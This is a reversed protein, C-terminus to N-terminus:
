HLPQKYSCSCLFFNLCRDLLGTSGYFRQKLSVRRLGWARERSESNQFLVKSYILTSKQVTPKKLWQSAWHKGKLVIIIKASLCWALFFTFYLFLQPYLNRTLRTIASFCVWSLDHGLSPLYPMLSSAAHERILWSEKWHLSPFEMRCTTSWTNTPYLLFLLRTAWSFIMM